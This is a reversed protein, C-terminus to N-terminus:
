WGFTLAHKAVVNTYGNNNVNDHSEDPGMCNNIDYLGESENYTVRHEWFKAIELALECGESVM